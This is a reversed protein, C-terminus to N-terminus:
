ILNSQRGVVEEAANSVGPALKKKKKKVSTAPGLLDKLRL